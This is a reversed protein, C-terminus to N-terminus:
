RRYTYGSSDLVLDGRWIRCVTDVTSDADHITRRTLKYTTDLLDSVEGMLTRNAASASLVSGLTTVCAQTHLDIQYSLSTEAEGTVSTHLKPINVIEHVVILPYTKGEDSYSERVDVDPITFTHGSLTTVIDDYLSRM